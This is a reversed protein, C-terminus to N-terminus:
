IKQTIIISQLNNLPVIDIFDFCAKGLLDKYEETTREHSDCMLQMNLNLLHAGNLIKEKLIEVLYLTGGKPLAKHVNQLIELAKSDNWDHIIRSLIIADSNRPIEEFFNGSILKFIQNNKQPILSIVNETEFLILKVEKNKRSIIELIAGLGGGVDMITNHISLDLIDAIEEYDYRAYEYMARHYIRNSDTHDKLYEFFPKGYVYDFAPKGTKITYELNQWSTLHEEGWVICAYKLSKPHNETLILGTETLEFKEGAQHIVGIRVLAKMLFDLALADAELKERLLVTEDFGQLILDFVELKCATKLPLYNWYSTFTQKLIDESKSKM